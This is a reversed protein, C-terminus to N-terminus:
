TQYFVQHGKFVLCTVTDLCTKTSVLEETVLALVQTSVSAKRSGGNEAFRIKCSYYHIVIACKGGAQLTINGLGNEKCLCLQCVATHRFGTYHDWGCCWGDGSCFSRLIHWLLVAVCQPLGQRVGSEVGSNEIM